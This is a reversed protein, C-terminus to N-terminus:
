DASSVAHAPEALGSDHWWFRKSQLRYAEPPLIRGDALFRLSITGLVATNLGLAGADRWRDVVPGAPFGYRNAWGAAYLVYVPDTAVVFDTGSSSRSGHHAAVVADSKLKEPVLGVLRNEIRAGIDGTNLVSGAANSIRLVCSADNGSLGSDASPHLFEFDVGDWQWQEGAVCQRASFGLRQPEGSQVEVINLNNRLYDIGGAHDKDGHSLVLRDIRRRGRQALFPYLVAAATSFGSAYQPGTDFVLTHSRTEVVTALGQGVDLLHMEFDGASLQAGRPLWVVTFLPVAMWRLPIGPPSLILGTAVLMAMLEAAGFGSVGLDPLPLRSAQDLGVRLWDLLVGLPQMIWGGIEPNWLMLLTGILASPVVVLGFIPVLVLNIVPAMASVPMGFATLLPWLALSIALQVRVAQSWVGEGPSWRLAALIALVAGFSLWFGASMVSPPHWLLVLIAAIALAHAPSKQRRLFLGFTFVALMIFARQTPLGMGALLAYLVAVLLGAVAGALRAPVRACLVPIRRWLWSVMFIGLGALLGIHLGSIAMLHSTGTARFLDKMGADLGAQDGVTIARIVGRAFDSIPLIDITESVASRVRTLLCCPRSPLHQPEGDPAVYGKYRIGQWYLWGEYDWAGPSAYGHVTRLRVPLRWADGAHIQPPNRWSLRFRWSGSLPKGLGEIRDAEFVFRSPNRERDPLSVVRGTVMVRLVEDDDAPLQPPSQILAYAHAWFFGVLLAGLLRRQRFGMWFLALLALELGLSPWGPLRPLQHFGLVGLVFFVSLRLM